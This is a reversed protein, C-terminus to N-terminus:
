PIALLRPFPQQRVLAHLPAEDKDAGRHVAADDDVFGSLLHQTTGSCCAWYALSGVAQRNRRTDPAKTRIDAVAAFEYRQLLVVGMGDVEFFRQALSLFALGRQWHESLNGTEIADLDDLSVGEIAMEETLKVLSESLDYLASRPALSPDKDLLAAVLQSMELQRRLSSVPKPIDRFQAVDALETVLRIRPLLRPPGADFLAKVRRQMRRTNVFIEVRAWDQPAARDMREELGRLLAAPFDVGLPLGYVRPADRDEFM